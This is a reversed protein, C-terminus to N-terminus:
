FVCGPNDIDQMVFYIVMTSIDVTSFLYMTTLSSRALSHPTSSRLLALICSTRTLHINVRQRLKVLRPEWGGGSVGEGGGQLGETAAQSDSKVEKVEDRM